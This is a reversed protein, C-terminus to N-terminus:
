SNFAVSPKSCAAMAATAELSPSRRSCARSAIISSRAITAALKTVSPALLGAKAWGPQGQSSCTRMAISGTVASWGPSSPATSAAHRACISTKWAISRIRPHRASDVSGENPQTMRVERESSARASATLGNPVRTGKNNPIAVMKSRDREGRLWGLFARKLLETDLRDTKARRHERSVAVSAPHIVYAEISRVELSRALWLSDRGAEFAVVIRRRRRVVEAVGGLLDIVGQEAKNLDQYEDVLIHDFLAREPAAPNDRLYRYVYPIIEGILM